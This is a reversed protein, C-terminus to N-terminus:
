ITAISYSVNSVNKYLKDDYIGIVTWVNSYRKVETGTSDVAVYDNNDQSYYLGKYYLGSPITNFETETSADATLSNINIKAYHYTSGVSSSLTYKCYLYTWDTKYSDNYIYSSSEYDLIIQTVDSCEYFNPYESKYVHKNGDWKKGLFVNDFLFMGAINTINQSVQVWTVTYLYNISSTSSERWIVYGDVESARAINTLLTDGREVATGGGPTPTEGEGTIMYVKEAKQAPTLQEYEAQTIFEHEEGSSGWWAFPYEVWGIAVKTIVDTM